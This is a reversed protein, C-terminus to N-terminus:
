KDGFVSLFAKSIAESAWNGKSESGQTVSEVIMNCTWLMVWCDIAVFIVNFFIDKECHEVDSKDDCYNWLM